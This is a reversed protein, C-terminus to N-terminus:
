EGYVILLTMGRKDLYVTQCGGPMEKNYFEVSWIDEYYDYSVKTVNYEVTCENKAREVAAAQDNIEVPILNRFGGTKIGVDAAKYSEADTSFSFTPLAPVILKFFDEYDTITYDTVDPICGRSDSRVSLVILYKGPELESLGDVSKKEAIVNYDLDYVTVGRLLCNPPMSPEIVGDLVLVPFSSQDTNENGFIMSIGAGCGEAVVGDDYVTSCLFCRIPYITVNGSSLAIPSYDYKDNENQDSSEVVTLVGLFEKSDGGYSLTLSYDACQADEPILFSYTVSGSEGPKITMRVIDDTVAIPMPEIFSGKIGGVSTWYLMAHPFFATSSGTYFYDKGSANIVSATINVTEGRTYETKEITYSFAFGRGTENYGSSDEVIGGTPGTEGIEVCSGSFALFLVTILLTFIKKM